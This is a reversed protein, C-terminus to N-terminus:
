LFDFIDFGILRSYDDTIGIQYTSEKMGINSATTFTEGSVTIEHITDDNYYLELGSSKKFIFGPEFKEISQMEEVAYPIKTEPNKSTSVGSITIHLGDKDKYVYKKAGLTKFEEIPESNEHEYIGMYVRKGGVDAYAGTEDCIHRIDDNMREIRAHEVCMAKSSDTDCYITGQGTADILRQLHERAHATVWVGWAYFLFSNRSKYFKKIAEDIDPRQIPMWKRNDVEIIDHVIDTYCMGFIGNLRNKSKAYLYQLDEVRERDGASEALGIEIKLKSKQHFYDLVCTRIPQPLYDYDAIRMDSIRVRTRDFDYQECILKWDIDTVTMYVHSATLIRGNDLTYHAVSLCKSYPIYPMIADEKCVVDELLVHFLCAKKELLQNLETFSNVEGYQVFKTMPFKCAIMQYPYSSAVDYSDVQRCVKGSLYRNAHTNGGRGAEKLMIYDEATLTLKLFKRHYRQDERCYRRCDRRVYGTSTMPISELTDKENRLRACIFSYLCVVDAVCYGLEINTLVTSPTRCVRYDLDGSAKQYICGDENECAKQLTMNTLLYSCRFEIGEPLTIYLPKRSRIAFVKVDENIFDKMFQYEYALNHVYIVFIRKENTEYIRELENMFIRWEEWTRGICVYSAICMQWHYMFGVFTNAVEITTTEIDYTGFDLLIEKGKKHKCKLATKSLRDYPFNNVNYVNYLEKGTRTPIEVNKM